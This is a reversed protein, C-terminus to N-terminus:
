REGAAGSRPVAARCTSPQGPGRSVQFMPDGSPYAFNASPGAVGNVRGAADFSNAVVLGSPYTETWLAGALNYQYSFGYSYTGLTETSSTVRGMQDYGGDTATATGSVVSALRGLGNPSATDYYYTV